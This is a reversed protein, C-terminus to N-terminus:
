TIRRYKKKVQIIVTRTKNAYRIKVANEPVGIREADEKNIYGHAHVSTINFDEGVNWGTMVDSKSTYDRGYAPVLTFM